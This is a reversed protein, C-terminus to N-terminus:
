GQLVNMINVLIMQQCHNIAFVVNSFYYKKWLVTGNANM